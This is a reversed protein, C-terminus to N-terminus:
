VNVGLAETEAVVGSKKANLDAVPLEFAVAAGRPHLNFASIEGGHERVIGYCISLGAGAGDVAYFPDFVRAADRFGAGTDSVVVHMRQGQCSVSVRIVLEGVVGEEAARVLAQAANNLLHELVQRLRHRNGRVASDEEGAQIELRVGRSELTDVCAASLERVLATVDVLEDGQSTPRWFELLTEVTQRMRLAERVIIGADEKVRAEDTTSAILEAFGLVATLPNNLAHAMGGAMMGLGALREARMLREALAANEMSRAVKVALAELPELARTLVSRRLGLLGTACVVLAGMMRGSATSLPIVIAERYEVELPSKEFVVGVSQGSLHVGFSCGGSREIAVERAWADLAKVTAEDMGTSGAVVMRGSGDRALMAVRGFSSKEAVIRSIREALEKAESDSSLRVDLGAYAKLEEKIRGERRRWRERAELRLNLLWAAGGGAASAALWRPMMLRGMERIGVWMVLGGQKADIRSFL